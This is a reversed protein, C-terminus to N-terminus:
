HIWKKSLNILENLDKIEYDPITKSKKAKLIDSELRSFFITKMGLKQAGFIDAYIDNGVMLTSEPKANLNTLIKEFMHYNPKKYGVDVSTVITTFFCDIGLKKLALSVSEKPSTETNSLLGIKFDSSLKQLVEFANNLLILKKQDLTESDDIQQEILTNGLDFIIHKM